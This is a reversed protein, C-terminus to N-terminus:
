WERQRQMAPQLAFAATPDQLWQSCLASQLGHCAFQSADIAMLEAWVRWRMARLDNTTPCTHRENNTALPQM